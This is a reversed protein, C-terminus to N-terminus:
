VVKLFGQKVLDTVFLDFNFTRIEVGKQLYCAEATKNMFEMLDEKYGFLSGANLQEVIEKATYGQVSGGGLTKYIKM